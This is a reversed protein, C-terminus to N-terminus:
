SCSVMQLQQDLEALEFPKNLYGKAGAKRADNEDYRSGTLVLVRVTPDQETLQSTCSLGDMGPMVLDMLVLDPHTQPYRDIAEQGNNVVGVVEHGLAEVAMRLAFQVSRSDEAILVKM